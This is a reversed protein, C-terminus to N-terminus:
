PHWWYTFKVLFVDEYNPLSVLDNLDRNFKFDGYNDIKSGGHTWVVYMTSGPLYEWRLILNGRLSKYNFDPKSFVFSSAPGIGDPDVIYTHDLTNSEMTSGNEGYRIFTFTKPQKLEKYETFKGASTLPQLYLQLSLTPTFTWDVRISAALESQDIKSFIYRAGYTATAMPDSVTTIYQAVGFSRMFYPSVTVNIGASPKIGISPDFEVTYAGSESRSGYVSLGGTIMKRSDSSFGLNASYGSTTKMMPGGRTRYADICEPSYSFNGDVSWYNMFSGYAFGMYGEAIKYGGFNYSRYTAINFSKSRFFGDPEYWAYGVVVHGNLVDTRSHYGLDNSDFVPSLLGFASNFQFNGKQKNLAVRGGYGALSRRAADFSVYSIDPRQFYHLYSEQVAAMREPSGTILTGAMWGAVVWTRSTDLNTWGDIGLAYSGSNFQDELYNKNLNRAVATGIIGLGQRGKDYEYLSRVIGYYTLPEVVDSFRVGASDTKAYEASTVAQIAGLSWGDDIKGTLKAAGIIHSRDPMKTYGSHQPSGEPARGIRRTYLFDPSGFNFGWNSNAGGYGFNLFDAGEVFFPRKESYYTEYQTLNVSAPDVEVQGFDPNIAANLTLNSGLGVKLDAGVNGTFSSRKNLPDWKDFQNTQTTSSVVYPMVELRAPPHIDRIGTLDAFRSVWGSEKKPIMVFYDEENIREIKRAFNVGWVYEDQQPFRLQSYPVRIEVAWGKDNIKAASEWVGDWSDDSWEDNYLTGDTVAGSAYVGFFVGTRKDHYSDIGLYFWDANLNGDRRAIRTVISDPSTDYMQAAVFLAEDDYSVWVETKQTPLVGEKPEKQTFECIGSRQWEAESLNGDIKIQEGLRHAEVVRKPQVAVTDKSFFPSGFVQAALIFSFLWVALVTLLSKM